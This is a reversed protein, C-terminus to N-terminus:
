IVPYVKNNLWSKYAIPKEKLDKKLSDMAKQDFPAQALKRVAAIFNLNVDKLQSSITTQRRLYKEFANLHNELLEFEKIEFYTKAILSRATLNQHIHGFQVKPLESLVAEYNKTQFNLMAKSLSFLLYDNLYPKYDEIFYKVWQTEKQVLGLHVINLFTSDNIIKKNIFLGTEYGFKYLRFWQKTYGVNQTKSYQKKCYNILKTCLSSLTFKNISNINQSLEDLVEELEVLTNEASLFQLIKLIIDDNNKKALANIELIQNENLVLNLNDIIEKRSDFEDNIMLKNKWYFKDLHENATLLAISDEQKYTQESILHQYYNINFWELDTNYELPIETLLLKSKELAKLSLNILKRHMLENALLKSNKYPNTKLQEFILFQEVLKISHYITDDLFRNNSTKETSIVKFLKDKKIHNEEFAPHKKKLYELLLVVEKKKNFYPTNVMRVFSNLEKKSFTKLILILKHNKM